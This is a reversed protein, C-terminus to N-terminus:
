PGLTERGETGNQSQNDYHPLIRAMHRTTLWEVGAVVRMFM